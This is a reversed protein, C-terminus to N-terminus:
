KFMKKGLIVVTEVHYTNPFMDLAYIKTINYREKLINLDRALTIPNCSVYGIKDPNIILIDNLTKDNLGSRPPDIIVTDIEDNITPLIESTDGAYYKYNKVKNLVANDNADKIANKVKEIGIIKNYRDKLSIGMVGSGCYLDLLTNGSLNNNLIKFIESAIYNNIQFFSDYSVKFKYEGIYDFFYNNGYVTKGNVVVGVVNEPPDNFFEFKSTEIVLLLDNNYNTRITISGDYINMFSHYDIIENITNNALLCKAIDCYDHSSNNYYSYTNRHIKLEVKNRYFLDKNSEIIKVNEDIGCYKKLIDKVVNRKYEIQDTYNLHMFTCGGCDNIYPCKPLVRNLSPKIINIVKGEYYKSNDKTIEVEVEENPLSNPIFIIKNNYYSIGRGQNDLKSIILKTHM